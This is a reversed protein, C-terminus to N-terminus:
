TASAVETVPWPARGPGAQWNDHRGDWYIVDVAGPDIGDLCNVNFSVYDGGLEALHGRGFCQVGCRACFYRTSIKAGWAYSGLDGEGALLTLAGPTVARSTVATKTCITCNCRSAPGALDTEVAFRVAGCHCGGLRRQTTMEIKKTEQSM